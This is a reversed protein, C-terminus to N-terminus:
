WQCMFMGEGWDFSPVASTSVAAAICAYGITIGTVPDPNENYQCSGLTCCITPPM